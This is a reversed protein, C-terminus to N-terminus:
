KRIDTQQNLIQKAMQAEPVFSNMKLAAQYTRQAEDPRGSRAYAMALHYMRGATPERTNAKELYSASTRYIGKLFYAWGITDEVAASEPAIQRAREAYKIADDIKDSHGALAFALNNLAVVNGPDSEVVRQYHAMAEEAHGSSDDLYGLLLNAVVNDSEKVLRSLTPRAAAENGHRMDLEAIALDATTSSPEVGKAALLASRAEQLQGSAELWEGLLLQLQFSKPRGAAYDHIKQIATSGQGVARYSSALVEVAKVNEPDKELAETAAARAQEFLGQQLKLTGYQVLLEPSRSLELGQEIGKRAAAQQKLDLLAWNREIVAPLSDRQGRPADEMLALASRAGNLARLAQSLEIRATLQSADLQLTEGLEQQYSFIAGAAQDAKALYYRVSASDSRDALALRLDRRAERIRGAWLYFQGRQELAQADKPNQELVRNLLKEAAAMRRTVFYARVLQSRVQRDTPDAQSLREYEAIAADPKGSELLYHAYAGEYEPQPLSSVRKYLAEAEAHDGRLARQAALDMLAPGYKSDLELAHRFQKEGDDSKHLFVLMRGLAVTAEISSPAQKVADGLVTEAGAFDHASMKIQALTVSSKLHQPM